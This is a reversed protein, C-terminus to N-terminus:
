RMKYKEYDSSGNGYKKFFDEFAIVEVANEKRLPAVVENEVPHSVPLVSIDIYKNPQLVIVKGRLNKEGFYSCGITDISKTFSVWHNNFDVTKNYKDEFAQWEALDDAFFKKNEEISNGSFRACYEQFDPELKGTHVRYLLEIPNDKNHKVIAKSYLKEWIEDTNELNERGISRNPHEIWQESFDALSIRARMNIRKSSGGTNKRLKLM